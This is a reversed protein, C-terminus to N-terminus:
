ISTELQQPDGLASQRAICRDHCAEHWCVKSLAKKRNTAPFSPQYTGPSPPVFLQGTLAKSEFFVNDCGISYCLPIKSPIQHSIICETHVKSPSSSPNVVRSFQQCIRGRWDLFVYQASLVNATYLHCGVDCAETIDGFFFGVLFRGHSSCM